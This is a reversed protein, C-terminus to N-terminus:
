SLMWHQLFAATVVLVLIGLLLPDPTTRTLKAPSTLHKPDDDWGEGAKEAPEFEQEFVPLPYAWVTGGTDELLKLRTHSHGTLHLVTAEGRDLFTGGLPLHWWYRDSM